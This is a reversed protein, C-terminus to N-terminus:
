DKFAAVAIILWILFGIMLKILMGMLQGGGAGVGSKLSAEM